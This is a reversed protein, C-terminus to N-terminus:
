VLHRRPPPTIATQTAIGLSHFPRCLELCVAFRSEAVSHMSPARAMEEVSKFHSTRRTNDEDSDNEGLGDQRDKAAVLRDILPRHISPV